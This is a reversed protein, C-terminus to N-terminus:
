ILHAAFRLFARLSHPPTSSAMHTTRAPEQSGDFSIIYVWTVAGIGAIKLEWFTKRLRKDLEYLDLDDSTQRLANM